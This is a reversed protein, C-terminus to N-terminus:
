KMEIVLITWETNRTQTQFASQNFIQHYGRVRRHERSLNLRPRRHVIQAPELLLPRQAGITVVLRNIVGGFAQWLALSPHQNTSEHSMVLAHTQNREAIDEVVIPHLLTEM